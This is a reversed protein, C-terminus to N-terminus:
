VPLQMNQWEVFQYYGKRQDASLNIYEVRSSDRYWRFRKTSDDAEIVIRHKKSKNIVGNYVSPVYFREVARTAHAPLQKTYFVDGDENYITMTVTGDCKYDAWIQKIVTFGASGFAQNYSDLTVFDCGDKVLNWEPPLFLQAKGGSGPTLTVRWMYGNIEVDDPPTLFVQRTTTTTNITWTTKQVGDVELAVTCNVGGTDIQLGVGRFIKACPYGADSWETFKVTDAPYPITGGFTYGWMKLDVSQTGGSNQGLSRIRVMKCITEPLPFTKKGRGGTTNPLTLTIANLNTTSGDIGTLTDIAIQINSDTSNTEFEITVESIKKDYPHGLDDWDFTHLVPGKDAPQFVPKYEWLQFCGGSPIQAQDVELRMIQFTIGPNLTANFNRDSQTGNVTVTQKLSGDGYIKVPVNTGNTNVDFALQEAYKLYDYGFDTWPTSLVTEKPLNEYDFRHDFLQFKANPNSSFATASVKLRILKGIKDPSIPISQMRNSGTGNVTVTQLLSGDAEIDVSVDQGNTDCNIYLQYLRKQYEYGYDSWETFFVRDAPYNDQVFKFDFIQYQSSAVVPRLRVMKAITNDLIPITVKSRGTSAPLTITQVASNTTNGNIGSITDLYLQVQSNDNDYEITCAILRKDYPHGLDSWDTVRGKTLESLPIFGFSLAHWTNAANSTGSIKWQVARAERGASAGASSNTPNVIIQRSTSAPTVTITQDGASSTSSYDYYIDLTFVNNAGTSGSTLEVSVDTINKKIFPAGMDYVKSIAGYTIKQGGDTYVGPVDYIILNANNSPGSQTTLKAAYLNGSIKDPFISTLNSVSNASVSASDYIEDKSWRDFLLNYRLCSFLGATDYYNFFVENGKQQINCLGSWGYSANSDYPATNNVTQNNFVFDVAFSVKQVSSGNWAYIGDYSLFWIGNDVYGWAQKYLLGRNAPTKFPGRMVGSDMRVTFIGARCLCVIEGNFEALGMIPNDPSSIAISHANGTGENIIPWSEPQATKSRYLLHPNNPDGMMWKAGAEVAQKSAQVVDDVWFGIHHLGVYDKGFGQSAEEDKFHLLALNVVGDTLFVGEALEGDIEMVEQLGVAHKYFEATEWPDKVSLAIHRLRGRTQATM